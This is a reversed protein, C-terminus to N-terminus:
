QRGSDKEVLEMIAASNHLWRGESYTRYPIHRRQYYFVERVPKAM